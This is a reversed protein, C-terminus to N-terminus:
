GNRITSRIHYSASTVQRERQRWDESGELGSGGSGAEKM